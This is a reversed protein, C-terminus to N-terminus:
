PISGSFTIYGAARGFFPELLTRTVALGIGTGKPKTTYFAEFLHERQDDTLGPGSDRVNITAKSDM